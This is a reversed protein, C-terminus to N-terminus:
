LGYPGWTKITVPRSSFGARGDCRAHASSAQVINTLVAHISLLSGFFLSNHEQSSPRRLPGFHFLEPLRCPYLPSGVAGPGRPKFNRLVHISIASTRILTTSRSQNGNMLPKWVAWPSLPLSWVPILSQPIIESAQHTNSVKSTVMIGHSSTLRGSDRAGGTPSPM